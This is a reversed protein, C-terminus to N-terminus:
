FSFTLGAQVTRPVQALFLTEGDPGVVPQYGEELLNSAELVASISRLQGGRWLRQMLSASAYAENQANDFSNIVTLTSKPQWHYRVEFATATRPLKGGIAATLAPRGCSAVRSQLSRIEAVQSGQLALATGFNAEMTAKIEGSLTHTWSASVGRGTYGEVALVFHGSGANSVLPLANLDRAKGAFAQAVSLHGGEIAGSAFNDRYIAFTTVDRDTSRSFALEQHVAINGGPRGDRDSIPSTLLPGSSLDDLTQVARSGAYRYMVALDATPHVILRLFPAASMRSSVLREASLLTGADITVLDGLVVREGTALTAAEYSVGGPGVVDPLSVVAAIARYQGGTSAEMQGLETSVIIAPGRDNEPSVGVSALLSVVDGSVGPRESRWTQRAGNATVGAAGYQFRLEGLSRDAKPQESAVARLAATDRLAVADPSQVTAKGIEGTTVNAVDTADEPSSSSMASSAFRLLPREASSRLTWRWNDTPETERRKEVPFWEGVDFAASMTMNALTAEGPVIRLNRRLAPLLFAASTRLQYRGAEPAKLMYRGHDDTYTHAIVSSGSGLLEVLAGLQPAGHLDRVVGAVVASYPARSGHPLPTSSQASARSFATSLALLIAALNPDVRKM